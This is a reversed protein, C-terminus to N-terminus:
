AEKWWSPLKSSGHVQKNYLDVVTAAICQMLSNGTKQRQAQAKRIIGRVGHQTNSLARVMEPEKTRGNNFRHFVFSLGIVMGGDFAHPDGGFAKKLTRVTQGLDVPGVADYAKGLAGVCTVKDDSKDRSIALGNSELVRRIDNERHNGRTCRVQFRDLAAVPKTTNRGDFVAASEEDSLGEYVECEFQDDDKTFGNEKLAYIRHQGDIIWYHGDRHNLVPIGVEEIRLNAALYAGWGPRFERQCIGAPPVRMQKVAVKYVKSTRGIGIRSPPKAV